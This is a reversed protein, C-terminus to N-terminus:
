SGPDTLAEMSQRVYFLSRALTPGTIASASMAPGAESIPSAVRAVNRIANDSPGDSGALSSARRARTVGDVALM